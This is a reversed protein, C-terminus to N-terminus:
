RATWVSTRIDTKKNVKFVPFQNFGPGWQPVLYRDLFNWKVLGDDSEPELLYAALSALPQSMRIVIDGASFNVTESKFKGKITNTYHGQNLRAAGKLDSIEFRDAIFESNQALREMVIGHLNLMDIIARDKVTLIYAFPYKANRVPYFDILYPVTVDIQRDTKKYRPWGDDIGLYEAEYTKITVDGASKMNFEIGLSDSEAPDSGKKVTRIDADGLMKIIESRNAAVYEALSKMLNYCGYVRTRFDAYVYNENLIGIRNRLGMYNTLYRPDASEYIWGLSPNMMDVFEGYFCNETKYKSSLIGSISPMMKRRMYNILSTDGNPNAMWTFTVPEVHFSGDTTHCDMLLAPNWRKLVKTILGQMEPSEAKMADRNLDLSQGNYRVGVGNAPGNQYTRHLPSIKENGDCNFIPCILFIINRFISTGTDKLIDRAFMQAAEKGEVEDAHINAQIYIVVRDDSAKKEPSEPLPNGIVMLPIDRGEVSQGISELRMCSSSRDLKNIFSMVDNYTSTSKFGSKEATTLLSTQSYSNIIVGAIIAQVLLIRKM